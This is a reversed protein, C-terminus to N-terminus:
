IVNRSVDALVQLYAKFDLATVDGLKMFASSALM